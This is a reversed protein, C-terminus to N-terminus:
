KKSKAVLQPEKEISEPTTMKQLRITDQLLKFMEMNHRAALDIPTQGENNKISLLKPNISLLLGIIKQANQNPEFFIATHLPTEDRNNQLSVFKPLAHALLSILEYDGTSIALHMLTNGKEDRTPVISNKGQHNRISQVRNRIPQVLRAKGADDQQVFNQVSKFIDKQIIEAAEQEPTKFQLDINNRNALYKQKFEQSTEIFLNNTLNLGRLNILNNFIGAPLETLKNSQLKLTQLNILNNFISAPLATLNNDNLYLYRLNGLANFIGAPLTTLPNRELYLTELNVLADLIGAPLTTFKNSQLDLRQLNPLVNFIGAPLTTLENGYLKLIQLNGLTNFIGAPLTTLGNNYLYLERIALPNELLELGGLSTIDKSSLDMVEGVLPPQHGHQAVYQDIYERVSIARVQVTCLLITILIIKKMGSEKLIKSESLLYITKVM